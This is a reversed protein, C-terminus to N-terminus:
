SWSIENYHPFTPWILNSHFGAARASELSENMYKASSLALFLFVIEHIKRATLTFWDSIWPHFGNRLWCKLSKQVTIRLSIWHAATSHNTTGDWTTLMCIQKNVYEKGIRRKKKVIKFESGAARERRTKTGLSTQGYDTKEAKQHGCKRM